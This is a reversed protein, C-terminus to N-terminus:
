FVFVSPKEQIIPVPPAAQAQEQEISKAEEDTLLMNGDIVYGDWDLPWIDRARRRKERNPYEYRNSDTNNIERDEGTISGVPSSGVPAAATEDDFSLVHPTCENETEERTVHPARPVEYFDYTNGYRHILYGMSELRRFQDRYTSTPIGIEQQIAIPSLALTYNDRNSALYLYLRLGHAGLNRSAAMWNENKIGLFNATARERHINVMRQNPFTIQPM